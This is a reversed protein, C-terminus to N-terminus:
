PDCNLVVNGAGTGGDWDGIGSSDAVFPAEISDDDTPSGHAPGVFDENEPKQVSRLILM